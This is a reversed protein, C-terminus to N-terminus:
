RDDWRECSDEMSIGAFLSLSFMEMKGYGWGKKGHDEVFFFAQSPLTVMVQENVEEGGNNVGRWAPKNCGILLRGAVFHISVLHLILFDFQGSEGARKKFDLYFINLM